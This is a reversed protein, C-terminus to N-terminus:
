RRCGADQRRVADLAVPDWAEDPAGEPAGGHTSSRLGDRMRRDVQMAAIGGLFALQARGEPGFRELEVALCPSAGVTRVVRGRLWERGLRPVRVRVVVGQHLTEVPAASAASRTAAPRVTTGPDALATDLRAATQVLPPPGSAPATDFPATAARATFLVRHRRAVGAPVVRLLLRTGSAPDDAAFARVAGPEATEGATWGPPLWARVIRALRELRRSAGRASTAEFVACRVERGPGVECDFTGPLDLSSEHREADRTNPDPLPQGRLAAFGGGSARALTDLAGAWALPDTKVSLCQLLVAVLEMGGLHIADGRQRRVERLTQELDVRRVLERETMLQVAWCDAEIEWRLSRPKWLHGLVHHACEHLYILMQTSRSLRQNARRNWYIRPEGEEVTAYGALNMPSHALGRVPRGERDVCGTFPVDQAALPAAALSALVALPVLPGHRM